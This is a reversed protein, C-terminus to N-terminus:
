FPSLLNFFLPHSRRKILESTSDVAHTSTRFKSELGSLANWDQFHTGTRFTRELESLANWNQFHTGTRFTSEVAQFSTRFTRFTSEVAETSTRFTRSARSRLLFGQRGTVFNTELLAAAADVVAGCYLQFKTGVGPPGRGQAEKRSRRLISIHGCRYCNIYM